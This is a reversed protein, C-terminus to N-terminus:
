ARTPSSQEYIISFDWYNNYQDVGYNRRINEFTSLCYQKSALYVIFSDRNGSFLKTHMM